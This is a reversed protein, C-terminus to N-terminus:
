RNDLAAQMEDLISRSAAVRDIAKVIPRGIVLYNAGAAIADSPTATRRQDDTSIGRPRVGPTVILFDPRPVARRIAAVELPSSIVGDAGAVEAIRARQSVFDEVSMNEPTNYERMMDEKTHDTLLTVVLIKPNYRGERGAKAAKITSTTGMVTLFEIGLSSVGSVMSRMTEGIDVNKFDLFVKKEARILKNEIFDILGKRFLHLGVKYFTVNEGLEEVVREADSIEPVDLAVILHDRAQAV